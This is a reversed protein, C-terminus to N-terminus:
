CALNHQHLYRVECMKPQNGLVAYMLPTRGGADRYEVGYQFVQTRVYPCMYMRIHVCLTLVDESHLRGMYFAHVYTCLDFYTHVYTCRCYYWLSFEWVCHTRIHMCIYTGYTRVYTCVHLPICM